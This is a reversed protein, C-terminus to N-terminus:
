RGPMMEVLFGKLYETEPLTPLVPHDLPQEFRRLRRASRRADVLAERMMEAFAEATVHHSCSFTALLGAHGLLKFARVHLERYGRMAEHLTSKTKTFAPQDLVILDYTAGRKEEARLFQFVDGERWNVELRNRQANQRAAAMNAASAEVATVEVAGARACALAYAGQSSFVIWCEKAKRRGPWSRTTRCNISIFDRKKDM